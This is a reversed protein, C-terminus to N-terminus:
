RIQENASQAEEVAKLTDRWNRPKIVEPQRKREELRGALELRVLRESLPGFLPPWQELRELRKWHEAQQTQLNEIKLAQSEKDATLVKIDYEFLDARKALADFHEWLIMLLVTLALIAISVALLWGIM